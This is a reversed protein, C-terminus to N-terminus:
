RCVVFRCTASVGKATVRAIYTGTALGAVSVTATQLGARRVGQPARRVVRGVVDYVVIDAAGPSSVVYSIRATTRVPSPSVRLYQVMDSLAVAPSGAGGDESGEVYELKMADFYTCSLGYIDCNFDDLSFTYAGAAHYAPGHVWEWTNFPPVAQNYVGSPYDWASLAWRASSDTWLPLTPQTKYAYLSWLGDCGLRPTWYMSHLSYDSLSVGAWCSDSFGPCRVFTDEPFFPSAVMSDKYADDLIITRHDIVRKLTDYGAMTSDCVYPNRERVEHWLSEATCVLDPPSNLGSPGHCEGWTGKDPIPLLYASNGAVKCQFDYRASASDRQAGYTHREYYLTMVGYILTDNILDGDIRYGYVAYYWVNATDFDVALVKPVGDQDADVFRRLAIWLDSPKVKGRTRPHLACDSYIEALLGELDDQSLAGCDSPLTAPELISACTVGDCHGKWENLTDRHCYYEWAQASDRISEPLWFYRTDHDYIPGPPGGFDGGQWLHLSYGEGDYAPWWYGAWPEPLKRPAETYAHLSSLFSAALLVAVCARVGSRM